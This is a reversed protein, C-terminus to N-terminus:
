LLVMAARVRLHWKSCVAGNEVAPAPTVGSCAGKRPEFHFIKAQLRFTVVFCKM